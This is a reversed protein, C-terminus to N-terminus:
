RRFRVQSLTERFNMTQFRFGRFVREINQGSNQQFNRIGVGIRHIGSRQIQPSSSTVTPVTSTRSVSFVSGSSDLSSPAALIQNNSTVMTLPQAGSQSINLTIGNHIAYGGTFQVSDFNDLPVFSNTIALTPMEEIWEASSESSTYNVTTIYNQNTTNDRFSITWTNSTQQAISITMSDGPNITLPIQVMGAPLLEYWAIYQVVGNGLDTGQTGAQILDQSNVGGIGVWTADAAVSSSTATPVVWSAGVSSYPGTTSVYGAWNLSTNTGSSINLAPQAAALASTTGIVFINVLLFISTALFILKRRYELMM